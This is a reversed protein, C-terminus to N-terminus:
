GDTDEKEKKEPLRNIRLANCGSSIADHVLWAYASFRSIKHRRRYEQLVGTVRETADDGYQIQASYKTIVLCSKAAIRKIKRELQKLQM